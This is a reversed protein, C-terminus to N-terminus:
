YRRYEDWSTLDVNTSNEFSDCGVLISNGCPDYISAMYGGPTMALFDFHVEQERLSMCYEPFDNKINFKFLPNKSPDIKIESYQLQGRVTRINNVLFESGNITFRLIQGYFNKMQAMMGKSVPIFITIVEDEEMDDRQHQDTVLALTM